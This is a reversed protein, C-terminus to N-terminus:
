LNWKKFLLESRTIEPRFIKKPKGNITFDSINLIEMNAGDYRNFNETGYKIKINKHQLWLTFHYAHKRRKNIPDHYEKQM